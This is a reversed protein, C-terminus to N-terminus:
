AWRFMGVQKSKNANNAENVMKIIDTKKYLYSHNKKAPKLQTKRILYKIFSKTESVMSAAEIITVLHPPKNYKKLAMTTEKLNYIYTDRIQKTKTIDNLKLVKAITQPSCNFRKCLLAVTIENKTLLKAMPESAERMIKLAEKKPLIWKGDKLKDFIINSRILRHYVTDYKLNFQSALEVITITKM